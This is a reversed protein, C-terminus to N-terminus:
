PVNKVVYAFNSIYYFFRYTIVPYFLKYRPKLPVNIASGLTTIADCNLNYTSCFIFFIDNIVSCMM